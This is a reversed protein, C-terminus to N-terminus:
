VLKQSTGDISTEQFLFLSHSQSHSESKSTLSKNLLSVIESTSWEKLFNQYNVSTVADNSYMSKVQEM